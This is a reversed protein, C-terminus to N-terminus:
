VALFLDLAQLLATQSVYTIGAEKVCTGYLEEGTGDSGVATIAGGPVATMLTESELPAPKVMDDGYSVVAGLAADWHVKMGLAEAVARVPLLTDGDETAKVDRSVVSGNVAVVGDDSVTVYGRYEYPFVLVKEPEGQADAWVLIRTGPILDELRVINKTLYPTLDAEDTITLVTGGAATVETWTLAPAPEIAPMAQATVSVIEYYQPVDYDAPVNGLILSAAAQPPLSLAMAPGVWAYATDGDKLDEINMPAGTVADLCPADGVHVVVADSLDDREGSDLLFTDEDMWTVTGWKEVPGLRSAAEDGGEEAAAAPVALLAACLILSLCQLIRRKMM